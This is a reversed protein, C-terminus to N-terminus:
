FRTGEAETLWRPLLGNVVAHAILQALRHEPELEIAAQAYNEAMTSGGLSWEYWAIVAFATARVQPHGLPLYEKFFAITVLIDRPRPPRPSLGVLNQAAEASRGVRHALACLEDGDLRALRAPPFDPHDFSLIMELADRSWKKALLADVAMVTPLDLLANLRAENISEDDVRMAELRPYIEALIAFAEETDMWEDTHGGRSHAFAEASMPAIVLEEPGEAPNSGSAVLETACASTTAAILPTSLYGDEDIRGFRERSVWWASLTDVGVTAFSAALEDVAAHVLGRHVDAYENDADGAARTEREEGVRAEQAGGERIEQAEASQATRAHPSSDGSVVPVAGREDPATDSEDPASDAADAGIPGATEAGISDATEAGFPGTAEDAFPDIHEYDEDYLVLFVGSVTGVRLVLDVYWDGGEALIRAATERTFDIRLTTSSTQAGSEDTGVILAVLSNRPTYGLTHPVIGIIDEPSRAPTRMITDEDRIRHYRPQPGTGSWGIGGGDSWIRAGAQPCRIEIWLGSANSDRGGDGRPDPDFQWSRGVSM